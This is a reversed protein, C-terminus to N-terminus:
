SCSAAGATNLVLTRTAVRSLQAQDHSVWIACAAHARCYDGILTEVRYSNAPDLNATPEDLLLVSPRRCLVRLLALRQRQGSSIRTVPQHLLTDDLQLAALREARQGDRDPIQQSPTDAWWPAEAALYMVRSRWKPAAMATSTQGDLTCVGSHADLDAMARLLRTKGAGSPGSMGLCEGGALAFEIPGIAGVSLAAVTFRAMPM